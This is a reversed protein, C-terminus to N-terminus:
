IQNDIRGRFYPRHDVRHQIEVGPGPACRRANGLLDGGGGCAHADVPHELGVGMGIMQRRRRAHAFLQTPAGADPRMDAAHLRQPLADVVQLGAKGAVARLEVLQKGIALRKGDASERRRGPVRRPM